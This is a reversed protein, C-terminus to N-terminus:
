NVILNIWLINLTPLYKDVMVGFIFILIKMVRILEDLVSLDFGNILNSAKLENELKILEKCLKGTGKKGGKTSIDYPPDIVVLDISNDPIKKLGILCDENYIKNVLLLLIGKM